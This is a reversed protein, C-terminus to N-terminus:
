MERFMPNTVILRPMENLSQNNEFPNQNVENSRTYFIDKANPLSHLALALAIVHDDHGIHTYRGYTQTKLDPSESEEYRINGLERILKQYFPFHIEGREFKLLLSAILGQTSNKLRRTFDIGKLNCSVNKEALLNQIEETPMDGIATQDICGTPPKFKVIYYFSENIIKSWFRGTQDNKFEKICDIYIDPGEAHIIYLVSADRKKGLDIGIAYQYDVKEPPHDMLKLNHNVANNILDPPFVAGTADVFEAEYEQQFEYRTLLEREEEIEKRNIFKNDYTPVRYSEYLKSHWDKYFHGHGLPTSAAFEKARKARDGFKAKLPRIAKMKSDPIFADEDRIVLDFGHGRIGKSTKTASFGQITSGEVVIKYNQNTTIRLMNKVSPHFEELVERITDMFIKIQEWSSSFIGIKSKKHNIAYWLSYCALMTTKGWRRGAAICIRKAKSHLIKRQTESVIPRNCLIEQFQAPDQLILKLTQPTFHRAM